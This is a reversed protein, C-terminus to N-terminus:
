AVLSCIDSTTGSVSQVTFVGASDVTFVLRGVILTSSPGAPVDTPFLILLNSGISTVTASGDSHIRTDSVAGRSRLIVTEGTLLNAFEITSGTGTTLLRVPNGAEDVFEHVRQNGGTLNIGVGFDPCALGAPFEIQYGDVAPSPPAILAVTAIAAVAATALRVPPRAM